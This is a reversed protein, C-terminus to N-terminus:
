VAPLDELYDDLGALEVALRITELRGYLTARPVATVRSAESLGLRFVLEGLHRSEEPLGSLVKGLDIALDPNSVHPVRKSSEAPLTQWRETEGGDGDEVLDQLSAQLLGNGRKAARAKELLTAAAHDLVRSIFTDRSARAPDFRPLRRLLDLRLEQELDERDSRCFPPKGALTRAKFRILDEAYDGLDEHATDM